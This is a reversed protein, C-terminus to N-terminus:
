GFQSCACQELAHTQRSQGAGKFAHAAARAAASAARDSAAEGEDAPAAPAAAVFPVLAGEAPAAPPAAAAAPAGASPETGPMDQLAIPQPQQEAAPPGPADAGAGAAPEQLVVQCEDSERGKLAAIRVEDQCPLACCSISFSSLPVDLYLCGM